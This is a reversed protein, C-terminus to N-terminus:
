VANETDIKETMALDGKRHYEMAEKNLAEWKEM